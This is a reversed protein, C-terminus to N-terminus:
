QAPSRLRELFVVALTQLRQLLRLYTSDQHIAREGFKILDFDCLHQVLGNSVTQIGLRPRRHIAM